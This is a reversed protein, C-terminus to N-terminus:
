DTQHTAEPSSTEFITLSLSLFHVPMPCHHSTGDSLPDQQSVAHPSRHSIIQHWLQNNNWTFSPHASELVYRWRPGVAGKLDLRDAGLKVWNYIDTKMMIWSNNGPYIDFLTGDRWTRGLQKQLFKSVFLSVYSGVWFYVSVLSLAVHGKFIQERNRCEWIRAM